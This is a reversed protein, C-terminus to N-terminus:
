FVSLETFPNSNLMLFPAECYIGNNFKSFLKTFIESLAPSNQFFTPYNMIYKRLPNVPNSYFKCMLLLNKEFSLNFAREKLSKSKDNYFHM